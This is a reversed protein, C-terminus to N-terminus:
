LSENFRNTEEPWIQVKSFNKHLRYVKKGNLNLEGNMNVILRAPFDVYGSSIVGTDKLQKWLQFALQRRKSTLPGYKQEASIKFNRDKINLLRFADLIEQCMDWSHFAAFILRKGARSREDDVDDRKRERHARKIQSYAVEYSIGPCHKSIVGALLKKTETYQALLGGSVEPEEELINKFVLTERLQRNTRSEIAEALENIQEPANELASLKEELEDVRKTLAAIKQNQNDEGDEVQVVLDHVSRDTQQISQQLKELKGDYSDLRATIGDIKEGLEVKTTATLTTLTKMAEEFRTSFETFKTNLELNTVKAMNIPTLSYSLRTTSFATTSFVYNLVSYKLVRLQLRKNVTNLIVYTEVTTTTHNSRGREGWM